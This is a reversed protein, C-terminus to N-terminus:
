VPQNVPLIPVLIHVRQLKEPTKILGFLMMISKQAALDAMQIPHFPTLIQYVVKTLHTDIFDIGDQQKSKNILHLPLPLIWHHSLKKM